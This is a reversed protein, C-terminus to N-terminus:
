TSSPEVCRAPPGFITEWSAPTSICMERVLISTAKGISAWPSPGPGCRMAEPADLPMAETTPLRDPDQDSPPLWTLPLAAADIIAREAAFLEPTQANPPDNDM